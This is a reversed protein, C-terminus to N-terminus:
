KWTKALLTQRAARYAEASPLGKFMSSSREDGVAQAPQLRDASPPPPRYHTGASSSRQALATGSWTLLGELTVFDLQETAQKDSASM